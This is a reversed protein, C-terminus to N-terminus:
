SLFRARQEATPVMCAESRGFWRYRHAAILNYVWDRVPRPVLILVATLNWPFSLRSAIRLSATSRMYFRDAEVLVLTPPPDALVLRGALMRGAAASQLPAFAFRGAPDRKMVFQVFASCANCVGDFLIV